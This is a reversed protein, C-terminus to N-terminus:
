FQHCSHRRGAGVRFPLPHAGGDRGSGFPSRDASIVLQKNQDILANFTHFFEEQTSDKGSIFQVDDVMLVDVSRFQEKFAMTENFRLAKIFQYMFKEASLYVVRREPNTHRLHWAIAHMLHTKGLGVGGYLFLPNCGSICERSEAVRRAAAFALENPKGVVFHDFTYRPDLAAGGIRDLLSGTQEAPAPPSFSRGASLTITPTVAPLAQEEKGESRVIVDVSYVTHDHQQFLERIKELYNVVVWERMFRTPAVLIAQGNSIERFTLPLLWNRYIAEGVSQYLESSVAQWLPHAPEEVVNPSHNSHLSLVGVGSDM